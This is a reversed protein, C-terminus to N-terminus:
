HSLLYYLVYDMYNAASMSVLYDMLHAVMCLKLPMAYKMTAQRKSENGQYIIIWTRIIYHVHFGYTVVDNEYKLHLM